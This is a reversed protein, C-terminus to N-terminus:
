FSWSYINAAPTHGESLCCVCKRQGWPRAPVSFPRASLTPVADGQRRDEGCRMASEHVALTDRLLDLSGGLDGAEIRGSKRAVATTPCPDGREVGVASEVEGVDGAM